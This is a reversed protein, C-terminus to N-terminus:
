LSGPPIPPVFTFNRLSELCRRISNAKVLMKWLINIDALKLVVLRVSSRLLSIKRVGEVIM